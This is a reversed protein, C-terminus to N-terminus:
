ASAAVEPTRTASSRTRGRSVISEAIGKADRGAGGVLMSAFASQFVLGNFYIGPRSAVIGNRQKPWGDEDLIPLHVWSLDQHFGTCWVVNRVDLTRGSELVPVGDRVGTVHEPVWEVGAAALDGSKVRLLPAGQSRVQARMKRGMPTRETLVHNAAFWLM